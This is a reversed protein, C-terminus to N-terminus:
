IIFGFIILFEGLLYFIMVWFHSKMKFTKDFRVFFLIVDSIFFLVAGILTVMSAIDGFMCHRFIAFCNMAGNVLLYLGIPISLGKKLHPKLKIFVAFVIVFYIIPFIVYYFWPIESFSFGKAYGLVFFLHSIIFSIGGCTFWKLGNPILFLDGLWSFLLALSIFLSPNEVSHIYFFFLSPLLIPKSIARLKSNKTFSAFLHLISACIFLALFIYKM